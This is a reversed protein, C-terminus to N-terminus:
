VEGDECQVYELQCVRRGLQLASFAHRRSARRSCGGGWCCSGVLADLANLLGDLTVRHSEKKDDVSKIGIAADVNDIDELLILGAAMNFCQLLSENNMSGSNMDIIDIDLDYKAALHRVM